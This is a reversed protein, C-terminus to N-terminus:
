TSYPPISKHHSLPNTRIHKASMNSGSVSKWRVGMMMMMMMMMLMLMLMMMMMMLSFDDTDNFDADVMIM